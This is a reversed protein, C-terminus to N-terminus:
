FLLQLFQVGGPLLPADLTSRMISGRLCLPVRLFGKTSRQAKTEEHNLQASFRLNPRLGKFTSVVLVVTCLKLAPGDIRGRSTNRSALSARSSKLPVPREM